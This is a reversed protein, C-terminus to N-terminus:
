KQAGEIGEELVYNTFVAKKEQLFGLAQKKLEDNFDMSLSICVLGKDGYTHHLRVLNPFEKKCPVCFFGWLDIVVVKNTQAAIHTMLDKVKIPKMEIKQADGGQSVASSLLLGAILLSVLVPVVRKM